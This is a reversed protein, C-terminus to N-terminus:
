QLYDYIIQVDHSLKYWHSSIENLAFHSFMTFLGLKANEFVKNINILITHKFIMYLLNYIYTINKYM